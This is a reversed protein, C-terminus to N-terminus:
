KGMAFVLLHLCNKFQPPFSSTFTVLSANNNQSLETKNLLCSSLYLAVKKSQNTILISFSCDQHYM